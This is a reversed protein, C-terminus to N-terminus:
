GLSRMEDAADKAAELAMASDREAVAAEQKLLTLMLKTETLRTDLGTKATGSTLTVMENLHEQMSAITERTKQVVPDDSWKCYYTDRNRIWRVAKLSILVKTQVEIEDVLLTADELLRTAISTAYGAKTQHFLADYARIAPHLPNSAEWRGEPSTYKDGFERATSQWQGRKLLRKGEPSATWRKHKLKTYAPEVFLVGVGVLAAVFVIAIGLEM